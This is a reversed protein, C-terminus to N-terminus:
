DEFLELQFYFMEMSSNLYNNIQYVESLIKFIEGLINKVKDSTDISRKKFKIYSNLIKSLINRDYKQPFTFKGSSDVSGFHPNISDLIYEFENLYRKKVNIYIDYIEKMSRINWKFDKLLKKLVKLLVSVLETEEFKFTEKYYIIPYVIDYLKLLLDRCFVLYSNAMKVFIARDPIINHYLKNRIIHFFEVMNKDTLSLFSHNVLIELKKEIFYKASSIDTSSLSDILNTLFIKGYLLLEVANDILIYAIRPRRGYLHSNLDVQASFFVNGEILKKKDVYLLEEAMELQDFIDFIWEKGIIKFDDFEQFNEDDCHFKEKHDEEDDEGFRYLCNGCYYNYNSM